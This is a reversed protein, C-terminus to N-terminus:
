KGNLCDTMRIVDCEDTLLRSKEMRIEDELVNIIPLQGLRNEATVKVYVIGFRVDISLDTIDHVLMAEELEKIFYEELLRLEEKYDGTAMNLVDRILKSNGQKKYNIEGESVDYDRFIVSETDELIGDTSSALKCIDCLMMGFVVLAITLFVIVPFIIAAEVTIVGKYRIKM